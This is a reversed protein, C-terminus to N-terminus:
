AVALQTSAGTSGEATATSAGATATITYEGKAVYAKYYGNADTTVTKVTEGDKAITVTAGAVAAGNADVVTGEIKHVPLKDWNYAIVGGVVATVALAGVLLITGTNDVEAKAPAPTSTPEEPIEVDDETEIAMVYSLSTLTVTLGKETVIPKIYEIKGDKGTGSHTVLHAV